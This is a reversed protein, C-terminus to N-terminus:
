YLLKDLVVNVYEEGLFCPNIVRGCRHVVIIVDNMGRGCLILPDHYCYSLRGLNYAKSRSELLCVVLM